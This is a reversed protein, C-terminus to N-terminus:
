KSEVTLTMHPQTANLDAKAETKTQATSSTTPAQPFMFLVNIALLCGTIFIQTFYSFNLWRRKLTGPWRIRPNDSVKPKGVIAKRLPDGVDEPFTEALLDSYHRARDREYDFRIALGPMWIFGYVFLISLMILVGVIKVGLPVTVTKTALFGALLGLASWLALSLKWEYSQRKEFRSRHLDHMKIAFEM